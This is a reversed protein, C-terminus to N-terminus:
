IKKARNLRAQKPDVKLPRYIEVREGERIRQTRPAKVVKGFVGLSSSQLDIEPFRMCIGSQEVAEFVTTGDPVQLTVIEQREPVAYAVEVRVLRGSM